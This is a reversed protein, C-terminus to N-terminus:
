SCRWFQEWSCDLDPSVFEPLVIKINVVHVITSSWTGDRWRLSVYGSTVQRLRVSMFQFFHLFQLLLHPCVSYDSESGGGGM